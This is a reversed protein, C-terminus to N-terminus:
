AAHSRKRYKGGIRPAIVAEEALLGLLSMTLAAESRFQEDIVKSPVWQRLHESHAVKSVAIEGYANIVDKRIEESLHDAFQAQFHEIEARLVPHDVNILVVGQPYSPENPSWAALMGSEIDEGRVTRFSPIGGGVMTRTAPEAGPQTGMIPRGGTGGSGGGRHSHKRKRAKIRRPRTGGQLPDVSDAGGLKAKLRAIRWRSGFREALRERWADDLSGDDGSRALSIAEVIETPMLDAFENAWDSIPLPGGADPGGQLLLSNRDTRPYVGHGGEALIPPRMVLWLNRRVAAETVGFSRYTAQHNMVDYLEGKYLAAIYGSIHAYSQVAPRDGDWLYWDVECGDRLPVTGSAALGGRKFSDVPYEIFFKAGEIKRSNTRRDPGV